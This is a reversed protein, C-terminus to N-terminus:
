PSCQRRRALERYLAEPSVGIEDALALWHGKAPMDGEHLILWADLRDGVKNLSLIEARARTMQVQVALHRALEEMIQPYAQSTANLQNIAVSAVETETIAIADCHYAFAFVSAEAVIDGPRARQLVLRRGEPSNRELAIQGWVVLYLRQVKQGARFLHKGAALQQRSSGPGFLRSILLSMIVIM